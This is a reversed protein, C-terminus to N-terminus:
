IWHAIQTGLAMPVYVNTHATAIKVHQTTTARIKQANMITLIACHEMSVQKVVVHFPDSHIQVPELVVVRLRNVNM